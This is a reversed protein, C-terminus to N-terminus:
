LRAAVILQTNIEWRTVPRGGAPGHEAVQKRLWGARELRDLLAQTQDADLTQALAVRRVEERSIPDTSGRKQLWRLLRRATAHNDDIGILRIASRAHPWFYDRVLTVAAEAFQADITKPLEANGSMAWDLM